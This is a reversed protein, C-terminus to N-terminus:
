PQGTKGETSTFKKGNDGREKTWELYRISRQPYNYKKTDNLCIGKLLKKNHERLKRVKGKRRLIIIDKRDTKQPLEDIYINHNLCKEKERREKLTRLLM